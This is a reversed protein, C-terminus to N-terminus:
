DGENDALTKRFLDAGEQALKLLEDDSVSIKGEKKMQMSEIANAMWGAARELPDVYEEDYIRM